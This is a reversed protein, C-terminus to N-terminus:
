RLRKDMPRGVVRQVPDHTLHRRGIKLERHLGIVLAQPAFLFAQEVDGARAGAIQEHYRLQRSRRHVGPRADDIQLLLLQRAEVGRFQRGRYGRCCAKPRRIQLRPFDELGPRGADRSAGGPEGPHSGAIM